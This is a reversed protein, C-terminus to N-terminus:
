PKAFESEEVKDKCKIESLELVNENGDAKITIKMPHKIGDAEKYDSYLYEITIEKGSPDSIRIESKAPLGTEKDFFLSVNKQDKHAVGIGFAAKDGVKVEGLSSLTFDNGKLDPLLQPLRMTYLASKMMPLQGEPAEIVMDKIKVWGKEGNIVACVKDKQGGASIEADFRVKDLGQWTGENTLVIEKGDKQGTAKGKWTGAKLKAVKAEGGMAKLAKDLVAKADAQEDARLMGTLVLTLCFVLTGCWVKCM